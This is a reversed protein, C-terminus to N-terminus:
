LLTCFSRTRKPEYPETAIQLKSMLRILQHFTEDINVGSMASTEIFLCNEWKSALAKGQEKTIRRLHELDCKNGVLIM